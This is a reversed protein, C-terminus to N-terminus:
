RSLWGAAGERMIKLSVEQRRNEAQLFAPLGSGLESGMRPLVQQLANMGSGQAERHESQLTGWSGVGVQRM